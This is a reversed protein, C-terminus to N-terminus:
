HIEYDETTITGRGDCRPCSKSIENICDICLHDGRSNKDRDTKTGCRECPKIVINEMCEYCTWEPGFAYRGHAKPAMGFAEESSKGCKQCEDEMEQGMFESM